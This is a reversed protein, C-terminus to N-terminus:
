VRSNEYKSSRTRQGEEVVDSAKPEAASSTSEHHWWDLGRVENKGPPRFYPRGMRMQLLKRHRNGIDGHRDRVSRVTIASGNTALCTAKSTTM